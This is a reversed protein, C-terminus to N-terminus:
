IPDVSKATIVAFGTSAVTNPKSKPVFVYHELNPRVTSILTDNDRVIRKARSPAKSLILKQISSVVGREVSAIDIYEINKQPYGRQLSLENVTAVDKVAVIRWDKPMEFRNQGMLSTANFGM